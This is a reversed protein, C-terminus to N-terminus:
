LLLRVYPVKVVGLHKDRNHQPAVHHGTGQLTAGSNFWRGFVPLRAFFTISVGQSLRGRQHRHLYQLAESHVRDQFFLM